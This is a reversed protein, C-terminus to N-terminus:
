SKESVVAVPVLGPRFLGPNFLAQWPRTRAQPDWLIPLEVLAEAFHAPSRQANQISYGLCLMQRVHGAAEVQSVTPCFGAIRTYARRADALIQPHGSYRAVQLHVWAFDDARSAWGTEQWDIAVAGQRTPVCNLAHLDRHGLLPEPDLSLAYLARQELTRVFELVLDDKGQFPHGPQALARLFTDADLGALINTAPRTKLLELVPATSGIMHLTALLEGWQDATIPEGTGPVFQSITALDAGVQIPALHLVPTVPNFTIAGSGVLDAAAEWMTRMVQHEWAFSAATVPNPNLAVRITVQRQTSGGVVCRLVRRHGRAPATPLEVLAGTTRLGLDHLARRAVIQARVASTRRSMSDHPSDFATFADLGFFRAGQEECSNTQVQDYAASAGPDNVASM